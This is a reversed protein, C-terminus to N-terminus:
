DSLKGKYASLIIIQKGFLIGALQQGQGPHSTLEPSPNHIPVLPLGLDVPLELRLICPDLQLALVWLKVHLPTSTLRGAFVHTRLPDLRSKSDGYPCGKHTGEETWTVGGTCLEGRSSEAETAPRAVM